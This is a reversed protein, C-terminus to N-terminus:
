VTRRETSTGAPACTQQNWASPMGVWYRRLIAKQIQGITQRHQRAVAVDYTHDQEDVYTQIYSLLSGAHQIEDIIAGDRYNALFGRPDERAFEREDINELSVYPKKPFVARCLTTKGSQRPGTVTVVPYQGAWERLKTELERKIM